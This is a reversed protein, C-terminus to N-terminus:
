RLMFYSYNIKRVLIDHSMEQYLNQYREISFEIRSELFLFYFLVCKIMFDIIRKRRKPEYFYAFEM